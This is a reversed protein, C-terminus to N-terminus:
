RAPSSNGQFQSSYQLSKSIFGGFMYGNSDKVVILLPGKNISEACLKTFSEGQHSSSYLLRWLVKYDHTIHHNLFAVDTLSLLSCFDEAPIAKNIEYDPVM